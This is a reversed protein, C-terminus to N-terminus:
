DGLSHLDSIYQLAYRNDFLMLLLEPLVDTLAVGPPSGATLSLGRVLNFAAHQIKERSPAELSLPSIQPRIAIKIVKSITTMDTIDEEIPPAAITPLTCKSSLPCALCIFTNAYPMLSLSLAGTTLVM